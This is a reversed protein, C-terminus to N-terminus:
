LLTRVVKLLADGLHVEAAVLGAIALLIRKGVPIPLVNWVAEYLRGSYAGPGLEPAELMADEGLEEGLIWRRRLRRHHEGVLAGYDLLSGRRAAWLPRMFVLLPVLLGLATVVVFAGMPVALSRLTVAHYIVDHAWRGSLVASIAFAPAVFALPVVELFGLGAAKDPHTPVLALDLHSIRWMLATALLLRWLWVLLLTEFIPAAVYRYWFIAFRLAAQPPEGSTWNLEHADWVAHGAFNWSIVIGAIAVWPRWGDRWANALRVIAAFRARDADAILGSRVFYPMIEAFVSHAVADDVIFLPVALLFRVHVGFHQLLPEPVEGPWLRHAFAAAVVLPVWTVLVALIVRRVVGLGHAPILGLARQARFLADGRVLSFEVAADQSQTM